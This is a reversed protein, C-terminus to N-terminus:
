TFSWTVSMYYRNSRIDPVAPATGVDQSQGFRTYTLGASWNDAFMYNLSARGTFTNVSTDFPRGTAGAEVRDNMNYSLYAEASWRLSLNARLSAYANQSLSEAFAGGGTNFGRSYGGAVSWINQSNYTIQSNLYLAGHSGVGPDSSDLVSYGASINTSLGRGASWGWGGVLTHVTSHGDDTNPDGYRFELLSFDYGATMTNRESLQRRYSAGTMWNLSDVYQESSFFRSNGRFSFNLGNRPSLQHDLNARFTSYFSRSREILVNNSGATNPDVVQESSLLAAEQMSLRTTQSFQHEWTAGLTHTLSNLDSDEYFTSMPTYSIEFRSAAWQRRVGGTARLFAALESRRATSSTSQFRPNDTRGGAMSVGGFFDWNEARAAAAGCATMLLMMAVRKM